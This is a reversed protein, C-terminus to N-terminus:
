YVISHYSKPTGLQLSKQSCPALFYVPRAPNESKYLYISLHFSLHISLYISIYISLHISLYISPYISISLYISLYISPYISLHISIYISPYSLYISLMNWYIRIAILNSMNIYNVYTLGMNYGHHPKSLVKGHSVWALEHSLKLWVSGHTVRPIKGRKLWLRCIRGCCELCNM